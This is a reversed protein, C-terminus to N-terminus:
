SSFNKSSIYERYKEPDSRFAILNRESETFAKNLAGEAEKILITPSLIRENRSSLGAKLDSVNFLQELRTIFSSIESIGSELEKDPLILALGNKSYEFSLDLSFYSNVADILTNKIHKINISSKEFSIIAFTVDQDFSAAKELEYKLKKELYEEWLLKNEVSKSSNDSKEAQYDETDTKSDVTNVSIIKKNKEPLYIIFIISSIIFVLLFIISIKIIRIIEPDSVTKYLIEINYANNGPIIFSDSLVSFTFGTNIYQPYDINGPIYSSPIDKVYKRNKIYLYKVKNDNDSIVLSYIRSNDNFVKKVRNKFLDSSFSGEALYVTTLDTKLKNIAASGNKSNNKYVAALYIGATLTILLLVSLSLLLYTKFLKNKM